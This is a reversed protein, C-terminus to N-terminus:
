EMEIDEIETDEIEMNKQLELYKDKVSEINSAVQEYTNSAKTDVVIEKEENFQITSAYKGDSVEETFINEYEINLIDLIKEYVSSITPMTYSDTDAGYEM